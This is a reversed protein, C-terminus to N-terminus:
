SRAKLRTVQVVAPNMGMSSVASCVAPGDPKRLPLGSKHTLADCANDNCTECNMLQCDFINSITSECKMCFPEGIDLTCREGCAAQAPIAFIGGLGLIALSLILARSMTKM